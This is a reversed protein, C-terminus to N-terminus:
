HGYGIGASLRTELPPLHRFAHSPSRGTRRPHVKGKTCIGPPERQTRYVPLTSPSPAPRCSLGRDCKGLYALDGGCSQGTLRACAPCCGCVGTTVGGKCGLLKPDKIACHIQRCPPCRLEQVGHRKTGSGGGRARVRAARSVVSTSLLTVVLLATLFPSPCPPSKGRRRNCLKPRTQREARDSQCRDTGRAAACRWRQTKWRLFRLIRQFSGWRYTERSGVAFVRPSAEESADSNLKTWRPPNSDEDPLMAPRQVINDDFLAWNAESDTQCLEECSNM